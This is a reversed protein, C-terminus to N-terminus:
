PGDVCVMLIINSYFYTLLWCSPGHEARKRAAFVGIASVLTIVASIVHNATFTIVVSFSSLEELESLSIGLLTIAIGFIQATISAFVTLGMM